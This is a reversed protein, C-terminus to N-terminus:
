RIKNAKSTVVNKMMQTKEETTLNNQPKKFKTPDNTTKPKFGLVISKNLWSQQKDLNKEVGFLGSKYMESLNYAACGSGIDYAKLFLSEALPGNGKALSDVARKIIELEKDM